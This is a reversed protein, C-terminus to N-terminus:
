VRCTHDDTCSIDVVGNHFRFGYEPGPKPAKLSWLEFVYRMTLVMLTCNSTTWHKSRIGTPVKTLNALRDGLRKCEDPNGAMLANVVDKCWCSYLARNTVAATMLRKIGLGHPVSNYDTGCLIMFLLMEKRLAESALVENKIRVYVHRGSRSLKAFRGYSGAPVTRRMYAASLRMLGAIVSTSCTAGSSDVDQELENELCALRRKTRPDEHVKGNGCKPYLTDLIESVRKHDARAKRTVIGLIQLRGNTDAEAFWHLLVSYVSGRIGHAYLFRAVDEVKAGHAAVFEEFTCHRMRHASFMHENEACVDSLVRFRVDPLALAIRDREQDPTCPPAFVLDGFFSMHMDRDVQYCKNDLRLLLGERGCATLVAVVDSDGTCVTVDGKLINALEVLLMDAETSRCRMCANQLIALSENPEAFTSIFVGDVCEPRAICGDTYEPDVDSLVSPDVCHRLESEDPMYMCQEHQGRSEVYSEHFSILNNGTEHSMETKAGTVHFLKNKMGMDALIKMMTYEIAGVNNKCFAIHPLTACRSRSERVAPKHAKAGDKVLVIGRAPRSESIYCSALTRAMNVITTRPDSEVYDTHKVRYLTMLHDIIIWDQICSPKDIVEFPALHPNALMAHIAQHKLGMEFVSALHRLSRRTGTDQM